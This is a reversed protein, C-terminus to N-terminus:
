AHTDAGRRYVQRGRNWTAMVRAPLTMGVYPSWGCKSVADRGAVITPALDLVVFDADYGVALAGKGTFKFIRAPAVTAMAVAQAADLGSLQAAALLLPYFLEVGPVGSPADAVSRAKEAMLHPAHDTAFVEVAGQGVLRRLAMVESPSRLPPNMKVLGGLRAYDDTSFLLHHPAVESTVAVGAARAEAIMEVEVPTSVHAIHIPRRYSTRAWELITRTSAQAAASSRIESHVAFAEPVSAQMRPALRAQNCDVTCQDESHFVIPKAGDAPLHRALSELDDYVLEGTTKGYFVKLACVPLTADALLRGVETINGAGVGVLLQFELGATRALEAKAAVTARTMTPPLTNPMDAVAVVGGHWAARALSRWDEKHTLGPERSHVHADIGGPVVVMGAADAIDVNALEACDAVTLLPLLRGGSSRALALGDIESAQPMVAALRGNQVDFGSWRGDVTKANIIRPM